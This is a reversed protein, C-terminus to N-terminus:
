SQSFMSINHFNVFLYSIPTWLYKWRSAIKRKYCNEPRRRHHRSAYLWRTSPNDLFWKRCLAEWITPTPGTGSRAATRHPWSGPTGHHAACRSTELLLSTIWGRLSCSSWHWASIQLAPGCITGVCTWIRQTPSYFQSKLTWQESYTRNKRALICPTGIPFSQMLQFM